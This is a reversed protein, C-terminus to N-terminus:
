FLTTRGEAKANNRSYSVLHLMQGSENKLQIMGGKNSLQAGRGDLVLRYTEGAGLNEISFSTLKNNKDVIQWNNIREPESGTNIITVSELGVDNGIPNIQAAIIKVNSSTSPPTVDPGTGEGTDPPSAVGRLFVPYFTRIHSRNDSHYLKLDYEAGNIMAKRPANIGLHGRVTGMALLGELSCGVFFGGIKKFLPRLSEREYDPAFWRYSITVSEPYLHQEGKLKSGHYHIRDDRLEPFSDTYLGDQERAFGDDLYYKYWFHYGKAKSGDQEGIIVHEFGSLHPDGGMAYKRFWMEMLTNYWRQRSLSSGTHRAIYERALQMPATDIIAEVFDHVETREEATDVEEDKERLAFNDFLKLGLQYTEKKSEPIHLETLVKLDQDSQSLDANVKIYGRDTCGEQNSLLPQIGNENQDADWILQYINDM